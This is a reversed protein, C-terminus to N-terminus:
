MTAGPERAPSTARLLSSSLKVTDVISRLGFKLFIADYSMFDSGFISIPDGGKSSVITPFIYSVRIPRFYHYELHIDVFDDNEDGVYVSPTWPEEFAPSSCLIKSSSELSASATKNGFKCTEIGSLDQRGLITVM